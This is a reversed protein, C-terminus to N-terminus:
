QKSDIIRLAVYPVLNFVLIFIKYLGLFAFFVVDLSERSLGYMQGHIAYILDSALWIMLASVAFLGINVISCWKFFARLSPIDM